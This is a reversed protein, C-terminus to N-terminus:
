VNRAEMLDDLEAYDPPTTDIARGGRLVIRDAQPRSLFENLSRARFILLDARRGPAILGLSNYGMVDAPATTVTRPWDGVPHDLHLIRTAERYTEVLDLDGYAHFPDRANDNAVMVPIGRARMEHLLTVGRWRPTRGAARDQLYMNCMPLSVVSIRTGAMLDLTRDIEAENQRALSCCHGVLIRGEFRRQRAVEAIHRLSQATPDGTEDVHFDLDLGLREAAAFVRELGADLAPTMYTVTGLVSGTTAVADLMPQFETDNLVQDIATLSVAQLAIRDAWQARMQAFVPWSIATQKGTSDLHTRIAVTGHAYACRLGFDMRRRVDESSWNAERDADATRLAGAFTGDPNRARPWIFGKDLHTHADVLGPLALRGGLEIRPMPDPTGAPRVEAIGGHTVVIDIAVLGEADMPGHADPVLCAPVRADALVFFAPPASLDLAPEAIPATPV